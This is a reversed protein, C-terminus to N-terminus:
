RVRQPLEKLMLAASDPCLSSFQSTSAISCPVFRREIRHYGNNKFYGEATTTLLYLNTVGREQSLRELSDLIDSALGKGQFDSHTAISRILAEKSFLQVGGAAVLRGSRRIGLFEACELSAIDSSDLNNLTLLQQLEPLDELDLKIMDSLM